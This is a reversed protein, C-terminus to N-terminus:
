TGQLGERKVKRFTRGDFTNEGDLPHLAGYRKICLSLTTFNALTTGRSNGAKTSTQRERNGRECELRESVFGLCLLMARFVSDHPQIQRRHNPMPLTLPPILIGLVSSIRALLFGGRRPRPPRPIRLSVPLTAFKSRLAFNL